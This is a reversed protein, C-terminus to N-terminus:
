LAIRCLYLTKISRQLNKFNKLFFFRLVIYVRERNFISITEHSEPIIFDEPPCEELQIYEEQKIGDM